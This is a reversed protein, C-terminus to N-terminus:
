WVLPLLRYRVNEAYQSYGPLEQKLTRDELFTRLVTILTTVSALCLAPISNLLFPTGLTFLITGAYGPHRIFAYPGRQVVQHGRDTQIRVYSSFFRNTKMGWYTLASGLSMVVFAGWASWEPFPAAWAFRKGLGAVIVALFPLGSMLPVLTRDWSKAQKAATRREDLLDPSDRFIGFTVSAVAASIVTMFLWGNRWALTGASLFLSGATVLLFVVFRLLERAKM